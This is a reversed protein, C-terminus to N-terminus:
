RGDDGRRVGVGLRTAVKAGSGGQTRGTERGHHQWQEWAWFTCSPHLRSPTLSFAPPHRVPATEVDMAADARM